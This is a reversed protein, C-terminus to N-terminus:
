FLGSFDGQGFQQLFDLGTLNPNDRQFQGFIRERARSAAGAFPSFVPGQLQSGIFDFASGPNNVLQQRLNFAAPDPLGGEGRRFALSNPDEALQLFDAVNGEFGGFAGPQRLFQSFSGGINVGGPPLNGGEVGITPAQGLANAFLFNTGARQGLGRFASRLIDPGGVPLLDDLAGGFLDQRGTQSTSALAERLQPLLAANAPDEPDLGFQLGFEALPNTAIPDTFFDEGVEEVGPVEGPVGAETAVDDEIVIDSGPSGAQQWNDFVQTLLEQADEGGGLANIRAILADLDDNGGRGSELLDKYDQLIAALAEGTPAPTSQGRRRRERRAGPDNRPARQGGGGGARADRDKKEEAENRRIDDEIRKLERRAEPSDRLLDAASVHAM